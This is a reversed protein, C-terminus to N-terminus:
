LSRDIFECAALAAVAGDSAATTLQRIHKTRCDGAVFVGATSTHCSEDAIVFGADDIKVINKVLETQPLQGIAVFLGDVPLLTKEGNVTNTLTLSSLKAEGSLETVINELMFRVKARKKLSDVLWKEGRFENRRHIITVSKCYEALFLADQLATDGGGFVAVDKDRFFVGDCVACYSIGSGILEDERALGLHRHKMGTAIILARCTHRGYDTVITKEDGDIIIETVTELEAQAGQGTAQEFLANSLAEGSITPVAPYNEVKPSFAIQGGFTQGELLLVTKGARRAYLAATMGACGAGIVIIDYTQEQM